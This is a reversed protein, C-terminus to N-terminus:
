KSQDRDSEPPQAQAQDNAQTLRWWWYKGAMDWWIIVWTTLAVGFCFQVLQSHIIDTWCNAGDDACSESGKGTKTHGPPLPSSIPTVSKQGDDSLNLGVQISTIMNIVPRLLNVGTRNSWQPCRNECNLWEDACTAKLPQQIQPVAVLFLVCISAGRHLLQRCVVNSATVRFLRWWIWVLHQTGIKLLEPLLNTSVCHLSVFRQLCCGSRKGTASPKHNKM